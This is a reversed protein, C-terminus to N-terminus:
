EASSKTQLDILERQEGGKFKVKALYYTRIVASYANQSDVYSDITFTSDGNYKTADDASWPFDATSPSILKRKLFQHSVTYAEVKKNEIQDINKTDQEGNNADTPWVWWAFFCMAFGFLLVGAYDAKSSKWKGEVMRAPEKRVTFSIM